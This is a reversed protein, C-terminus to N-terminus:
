EYLKQDQIKKDILKSDSGKEKARKWYEVAKSANGLKYYIDGLHEWLTADADPGNKDLAMQVYERAKDYKGEKYLIWGYTDMFTAEAPRIELSQRSMKEAEDLKEGRESLYYSYNNLVTANKPDFHLAKDYSSDSLHYQQTTNYVDGLTAYMEALLDANDEPQMDVARNISKIAQPYSKKNFYGVGNLYYVMAQNPFLRMAKESYYILSDADNRDTYGYMLQQWVNYKSPDAALAKKYQEVAEKHKNNLSLIDGYFSIVQVDKPHQEVLQATLDLADKRRDSDANLEQLYPLLMNLQTEADLDKNTIAKRVYEHYKAENKEKRYYNALSLQLSPDDPFQKEAKEYVESAKSTEKNNDYLEALMAYFRAERPNQAILQEAIKTAGAADNMKLFLQQKQMLYEEDDGTKELLRDIAALSEKYKGARQYMLAAKQLYEENQTEKKALKIFIDGAEEYRTKYALVTAYQDQMWKNDPDLAVAKKIYDYANDPKNQRIALRSLNYYGAAEDPKLRIFQLLLQEEQQDDGKMMATVADYYVADANQAESPKTVPLASSEQALASTISFATLVVSGAIRIKKSLNM